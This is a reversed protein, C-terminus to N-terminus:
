PAARAREVFRLVRTGDADGPGLELVPPDHAAIWGGVIRAEDVEDPPLWGGIGPRPAARLAAATRTLLEQPDDPLRGWDAVRGGAIWVADYREGASPHRALVLRTGAHTARLVGGLKALLGRLRAHRRRLWAAREYQQAASAARM